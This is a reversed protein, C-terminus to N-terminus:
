IFSMHFEHIVHSGIEHGQRITEFLKKIRRHVLRWSGGFHIVSHGRVLKHRGKRYLYSKYWRRYRGAFFHIASVFYTFHLSKGRKKYKKNFKRACRLTREWFRPAGSGDFSLCVFQPPRPLVRASRSGGSGARPKQPRRKGAAWAVPLASSRYLLCAFCVSFFLFFLRRAVFPSSHRM